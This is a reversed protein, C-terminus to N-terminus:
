VRVWEEIVAVVTKKSVVPYMEATDELIGDNYEREVTIAYHGETADYKPATDADLYVVYRMLVSSHKLYEEEEQVVPIDKELIDNLLKIKNTKNM